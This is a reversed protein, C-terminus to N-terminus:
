DPSSVFISGSPAIHYRRGSKTRSYAKELEGFLEERGQPDDLSKKWERTFIRVPIYNLFNEVVFEPFDELSPLAVELRKAKLQVAAAEEGLADVLLDKVREVDEVNEVMKEIFLRQLLRLTVAKTLNSLSRQSWLTANEGNQSEKSAQDNYFDRVTSWFSFWYPRWLGSTWAEWEARDPIRPHIFSSFFEDDSRWGRSDRSSSGDILLRITRETIYALQQSAGTGGIALKVMDKFPSEDERNAVVAAIRAEVDVRARALRDRIHKQEPRTLSSGFIDTLLSSDVKEAKENIVIFQYIQEAWDCNPMVVCPLRVDVNAKAAGLLRHQGDVVLAPRCLAELSTVMERVEVDEISNEDVFWQPDKVMQTLQIAFEFVYDHNTPPMEDLPQLGFAELEERQDDALRLEVRPLVIKALRQLNNIPDADLDVPSTYKLLLRGDQFQLPEQAALTIATPGLIYEQGSERHPTAARTWFDALERQRKPTIWRQYLMRLRWGKRPIGAWQVLVKAPAELLYLKDSEDASGYQQFELFRAAYDSTIM